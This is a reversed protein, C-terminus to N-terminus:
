VKKLNIHVAVFPKEETMQLTARGNYLLKLRAKINNLGIGLSDELKNKQRLSGTNKVMLCLGGIEKEARIFIEGGNPLLAIGHKVANEMLVQLIMPPITETLVLEDADIYYQLKEEYQLKVLELYQRLIGLEEEVTIEKEESHQLAYRLLESFKTIMVRAKQQDELILARINNLSNFMFHPNIQAKLTGWNAKQVEADLQWRKVEAQHYETLLHYIMYSLVWASTLITLPVLNLTLELLNLHYRNIVPLFLILVMGLWCVSIMLTSLILVRIFRGAALNFSIGKKKLYIRYASTVLLGGLSLGALNMWLLTKPINRTTNQLLYNCLGIILWISLQVPWFWSKEKAENM